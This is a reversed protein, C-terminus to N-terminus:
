NYFMQLINARQSLTMAGKKIEEKKLYKDCKRTEAWWVVMLDCILQM